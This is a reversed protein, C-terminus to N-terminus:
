RASRVCPQRDTREICVFRATGVFPDGTAHPLNIMRPLEDFYPPVRSQGMAMIQLTADGSPPSRMVTVRVAKSGYRPPSVALPLTITEGAPVVTTRPKNVLTCNCSTRVELIELPTSGRNVFDADLSVSGSERGAPLSVDIEAPVFAGEGVAAKQADVSEAPPRTCGCLAAFAFAVAIRTADRVM